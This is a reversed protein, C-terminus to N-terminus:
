SAFPCSTRASESFRLMNLRVIDNVDGRRMKPISKECFTVTLSRSLSKGPSSCNKRSASEDCFSTRMKRRVKLVVTSQFGESDSGGIKRLRKLSVGLMESEFTSGPGYQTRVCTLPPSNTCCDLRSVYPM